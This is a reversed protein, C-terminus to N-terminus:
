SGYEMLHGPIFGVPLDSWAQSGGFPTLKGKTIRVNRMDTLFSPPLDWPMMDSNLGAKAFDNIQLFKLM